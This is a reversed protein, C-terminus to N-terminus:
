RDQVLGFIPPVVWSDPDIDASLHEPIIRSLNGAIGGGTIHAMGKLRIGSKRLRDIQRWFSPHPRTLAEGISEGSLEAPRTELLHRSDEESDNGVIGLAARALSYGNTM